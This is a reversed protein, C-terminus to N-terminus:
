AKKRRRKLLAKLSRGTATSRKPDAGHVVGILDTATDYGAHTDHREAWSGIAERILESVSIQRRRAIRRICERTEKDLRLTLPSDM